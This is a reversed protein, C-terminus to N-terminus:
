NVMARSEIDRGDEGAVAADNLEPVRFGAQIAALEADEADENLGLRRCADAAIRFLRPDPMTSLRSEVLSLAAGADKELLERAAALEDDLSDGAAISPPNIGSMM